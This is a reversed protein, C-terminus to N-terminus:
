VNGKNAEVFEVIEALEDSMRGLMPMLSGYRNGIEKFIALRSARLQTVFETVADNNELAARIDDTTINTIIEDLVPALLDANTPNAPLINM